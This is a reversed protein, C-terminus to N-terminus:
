RREPVPRYRPSAARSLKKARMGWLWEWGKAAVFAAGSGGILEILSGNPQILAVAPLFFLVIKGVNGSADALAAQRDLWGLAFGLLVFGVVIGPIGFNIQFEMVNGVGFSTTESLMLGTMEGVIKPSGAFIPKDPWVARPVLSLVGEWISKGYLYEVDGENIRTAALGAFYNQNLRQDLAILQKENGPDFLQFDRVINMSVDVRDAMPAGGWVVDRIEGRGLFYSLFLSIGLVVSVAGVIVVRPLSRTSIALAGLVVIVATSGYSLFGGLLLTLIPYVTLAGLWFASWAHDKRRLADRLGLLVGLMWIGGAKDVAAGFTPIVRLFSLGYTFAWGGLLCFMWFQKRNPSLREPLVLRRSRALWVGIVFFVSGIATFRIGIRTMEIDSLIANTDYFHAVAGPVHILHLAFLYAVPMGLSLRTKRIVLLLWIETAICILISLLM